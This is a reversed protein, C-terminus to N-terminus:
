LFIGLPMVFLSFFTGQRPLQIWQNKLRKTFAKLRKKTLALSKCIDALYTKIKKRLTATKSSRKM